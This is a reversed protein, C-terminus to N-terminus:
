LSGDSGNHVNHIKVAGALPFANQQKMDISWARLVLTGKPLNSADISVAFGDPPLNDVRFREKRELWEFKPRFVAFTTLRHDATVYGVVVCDPRGRQSLVRATGTVLLKGCENFLATQLAGTSLGTSPPEQRVQSILPTSVFRPRLLDYQSLSRAEDVIVAPPVGGLKLEPNDPIAPIWQVALALRRREEQTQKLVILERNFASLWAFALIGATAGIYFIAVLSLTKKQRLLESYISVALGAVAIYCYVRVPAYRPAIATNPGFGLRGAATVAGSIFGYAGLVLWPYITKWDRDRWSSKIVVSGLGLFGTVVLLGLLFADASTDAFLAGIWRVVFAALSCAQNFSVIFEPGPRTYHLFYLSVSIVGAIGYVAYWPAAAKFKPRAESTRALWHIPIALLWLLMGNAFSYTAIVALITTIIVKFRFQIGSLNALVAFLLLTGPTFDTLQIGWLFNSYQGPCFLLLNLLGWAWLRGELSFNTTLRLLQYMAVSAACAFAFMLLMEDKADWRGSLWTLALYYLRPFLPRSENHQSWLGSVSLVGRFFSVIQSGPTYWDDYYPVSTWHRRMMVFAVVLPMFGLTMAMMVCTNRAGSLWALSTRFNWM